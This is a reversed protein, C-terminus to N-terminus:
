GPGALSSPSPGAPLDVAIPAIVEHQREVARPLTPLETASAGASYESAEEPSLAEHGLMFGLLAVATLAPLM